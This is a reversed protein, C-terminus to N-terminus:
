PKWAQGSPDRSTGQGFCRQIVIAARNDSFAVVMDFVFASFLLVFLTNPWAVNGYTGM